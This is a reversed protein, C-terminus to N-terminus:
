DVEGGTAVMANNGAVAGVAAESFKGDISYVGGILWDRKTKNFKEEDGVKGLSGTAGVEREM